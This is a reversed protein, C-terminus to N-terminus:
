PKLTRVYAIVADVDQLPLRHRYGAEDIEVPPMKEDGQMILRRLTADPLSQVAESTLRPIRTNFFKDAGKDGKGDEGHCKACTLAFATKGSVSHTASLSSGWLLLRKHGKPIEHLLLGEAGPMWVESLLLGKDTKDFVLSGDRFLETPGSLETEIGANLKNGTPSEVVLWAKETSTSFIYEGAPMANAGIVFEYPVQFHAIATTQGFAMQVMCGAVLTLVSLGKALAGLKKARTM